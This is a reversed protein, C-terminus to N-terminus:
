RNKTKEQKTERKGIGGGRPSLDDHPGHSEEEAFGGESGSGGRQYQQSDGSGQGHINKPAGKDVEAIPKRAHKKPNRM